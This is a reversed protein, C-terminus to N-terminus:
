TLPRVEESNWGAVLSLVDKGLPDPKADHLAAASITETDLKM